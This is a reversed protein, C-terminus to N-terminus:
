RTTLAIVKYLTIEVQSGRFREYNDLHLEAGLRAGAMGIRIRNM